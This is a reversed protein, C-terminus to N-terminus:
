VVSNTRIVEKYFDFSLKPTREETQFDVYTIGFRKSFGSSWEYNDLLSWLFYGRVPVGEAVGRQLQTLYNRLYMIRDTDLVRDDPNPSKPRLIDDSSYGNETIYISRVGWIESVLKPTWYLAQPNVYLWDSSAHPYTSPRPVMRFGDPTDTPIAEQTTYVNIGLFDIPTAIIKLEEPTFHPADPGLDRLYRDTYRGELIVTSYQANIERIATEAARIHAADEIAPMAGAIDQALGVKVPQTAAARIAQVGLGHALVAYHRAQMVQARPLKLGPASVGSGYGADIFSGFENTTIWHTIRDSLQSVTYHAYDAFAHSTAINTWGGKDQLAQPLDWHFLTCFPEINAAHLEDLLRKYFDLGKPNPTGTGQPFIRPWSISFRYTRVGLDKMLAVDKKYLHFDDDAIDATQGDYTKGPTHAFTDWVSTGRGDAHVAGEVQYAATATGWLFGQPFSRPSGPPITPLDAAAASSMFPQFAPAAALAAASKLFTRRKM